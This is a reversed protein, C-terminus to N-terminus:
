VTDDTYYNGYPDSGYSRAAGTDRSLVETNKHSKKWVSYMVTDSPVIELKEGTRIGLVAEGLVQSWLSEDKVNSTRDYMLLNSKWLRGSVGFEVAEGNFERGFVIGTVCLPCYTVLVPKGEITDNVIEHWVLIRYPYFRATDGVVVGLGPSDDELQKDADKTSIFKPNDISPIGDKSPGGSLIEDLPISHKIEDTIFIERSSKQMFPKTLDKTDNIHTNDVVTDDEEEVFPVTEGKPLEFKGGRVFIFAIIGIVFVILFVTLLRNNM